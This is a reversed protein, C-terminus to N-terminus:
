KFVGAQFLIYGVIAMFNIVSVWTACQLMTKMSKVDKNHDEKQVMKHELEGIVMQVNRYNRVNEEHINESIDKKMGDVAQNVLHVTEEIGKLMEKNGDLNDTMETLLREGISQMFADMKGMVQQISQNLEESVQNAEKKKKQLEGELEMMREEKTHVIGQLEHVRGERTQLMEQLQRAKVKFEDIQKILIDDRDLKINNREWLKNQKRHDLKKEKTKRRFIFAIKMVAGRAKYYQRM